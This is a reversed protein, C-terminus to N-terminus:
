NRVRRCTYNRENNGGLNELGIKKKASLWRNLLAAIFFLAANNVSNAFIMSTNIMLVLGCWLSAYFFVFSIDLATQRRAKYGFKFSAYAFIAPWLASLLPGFYYMGEVVNPCISSIIFKGFYQYNFLVVSTMSQDVFNSLVSVNSLMDNFLLPVHFSGISQDVLREAAVGVATEKIGTFYMNITDAWWALNTSNAVDGRGEGFFKTFSLSGVFIVILVVSLRVLKKRTAKSDFFTYCLYLSTLIPVLVAIRSLNQIYLCNLMSLIFAYIAFRASGSEVYKKFFHNIVLIVLSYRAFTFLTKFVGTGAATLVVNTEIDSKDFIFRCDAFSAPSIIFASIGLAILVIHMWKNNLAHRNVPQLDVSDRSYRRCCFFVAYVALMEYVTLFIASNINTPSPYIGWSSKYGAACSLLPSIIYKIIMTYSLVMPGMLSPDGLVLSPAVILMISFLLPILFYMSYGSTGDTEFLVFVAVLMSLAGLVMSAWRENSSISYDRIIRRQTRM